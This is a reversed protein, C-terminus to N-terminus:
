YFPPVWANATAATLCYTGIINERRISPWRARLYLFTLLSVPWHQVMWLLLLFYFSSISAQAQACKKKKPRHGCLTKVQAVTWICFFYPWHVATSNKKRVTVAKTNRKEKYKIPRSWLFLILCATGAALSELERLWSARIVYNLSVLFKYVPMRVLLLITLAFRSDQLHFSAFPRTACHGHFTWGNASM